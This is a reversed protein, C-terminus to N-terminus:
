GIASELEKGGLKDTFATDVFKHNHCILTMSGFGWQQLKRMRQIIFWEFKSIKADITYEIKQSM